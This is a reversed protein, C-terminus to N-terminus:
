AMTIEVWPNDQIKVSCYRCKGRLWLWSFLPVLDKAALEHHCHSCMSRGHLMSRSRLQTELKTLSAKSGKKSKLTEIQERLEEQEHLRWVLANVFSGFILGLAILAVYIM